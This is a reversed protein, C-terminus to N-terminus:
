RGRRRRPPTVSPEVATAITKAARWLQRLEDERMERLTPTVPGDAEICRNEVDDIIRMFTDIARQIQRGNAPKAM